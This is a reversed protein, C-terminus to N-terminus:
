NDDPVEPCYSDLKYKNYDTLTILLRMYIEEAIDDSIGALAQKRQSLTSVTDDGLSYTEERIFVPQNLIIENSHVSKVSYSIKLKAKLGSVRDFFGYTSGLHEVALIEGNLIYDANNVSDTISFHGSETFWDVLSNQLTAELSFENTQNKWQPVFIRITGNQKATISSGDLIHYGCGYFLSCLFVCTLLVFNNLYYSFSFNSKYLQILRNRISPITM